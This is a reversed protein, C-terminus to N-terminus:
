CLLKRPRWTVGEFGQVDLLGAIPLLWFKLELIEVLYVAFIWPYIYIYMSKKLVYIVNLMYLMFFCIFCKHCIYCVCIYIYIFTYVHDAVNAMYKLTEYQGGHARIDM